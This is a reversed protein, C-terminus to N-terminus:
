PNTREPQCEADPNLPHQLYTPWYPGAAAATANYDAVRAKCDAQHQAPDQGTDSPTGLATQASHLGDIADKVRQRWYGDATATATPKPAPTSHHHGALCMAAVVAALGVACVVQARTV